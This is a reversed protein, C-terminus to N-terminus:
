IVVTMLKKANSHMASGIPAFRQFVKRKLFDPQPNSSPFIRIFNFQARFRGVVGREVNLSM